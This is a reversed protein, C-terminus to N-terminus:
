LERLLHPPPEDLPSICINTKIGSYFLNILAVPIGTPSDLHDGAQSWWGLCFSCGFAFLFLIMLLYTPKHLAFGILFDM